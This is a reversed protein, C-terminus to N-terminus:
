EFLIHSLLRFFFFDGDRIRWALRGPRNRGIQRRDCDEVEKLLNFCSGGCPLFQPLPSLFPPSAFPRKPFSKSPRRKREGEQFSPGTEEVGVVSKRGSQKKRFGILRPNGRGRGPHRHDWWPPYSWRWWWACVCVCVGDIGYKMDRCTNFSDRASFLISRRRGSHSRIMRVAHMLMLLRPMHTYSGRIYTYM